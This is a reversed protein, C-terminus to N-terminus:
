RVGGASGELENQVDWRCVAEGDSPRPEYSVTTDPGVTADEVDAGGAELAEVRLALEIQSGCCGVDTFEEITDGVRVRGLTKALYRRYYAQGIRDVTRDSLTEPYSLTVRDALPPDAPEPPM